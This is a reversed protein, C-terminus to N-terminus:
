IVKDLEDLSIVDDALMNTAQTVAQDDAWERVQRILANGVADANGLRLAGLLESKEGANLDGLITNFQNWTVSATLNGRLKRAIRKIAKEKDM